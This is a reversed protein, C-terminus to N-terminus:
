KQGEAAAEKKGEKAALWERCRGLADLCPAVAERSADKLWLGSVDYNSPRDNIPLFCVRDSFVPINHESSFAVYEGIEVDLYMTDVDNYYRRMSSCHDPLLGDVFDSLGPYAVPDPLLLKQGCLQDSMIGKQACAALDHGYSVVADFRDEYIAFSDCRGRAEPDLDITLALDVKRMNLAALLEGYEMCTLNVRVEPHEKKMRKLFMALFPRSANRLYGIRAVTEYSQNIAAIRALAREYSGVIATAEELFAEGSRTLRVHHSDRVFLRACLEDEMSAIHKSLVSQSVYFRKATASFSLTEAVYIFERLHDINM